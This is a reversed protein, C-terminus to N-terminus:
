QEVVLSCAKEWRPSDRDYTALACAARLRRREKGKGPQEVVSWLQQVLEHQHPVLADRIVSVEQAQADLLRAVLYDVQRRDVPLWALSTHLKRRPDTAAKDHEQRLLPDPWARFKSLEELLAPVQ